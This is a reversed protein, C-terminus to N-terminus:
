KLYFLIFGFESASILISGTGVFPDWVLDNKKVKAFNLMVFALEHDTTTPGLYVRNM